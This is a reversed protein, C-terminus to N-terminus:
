LLSSHGLFWFQEVAHKLGQAQLLIGVSRLLGIDVPDLAKDKEVLLTMRLFQAPGLYFCKEVMQHGM